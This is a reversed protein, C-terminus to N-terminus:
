LIESVRRCQPAREDQCVAALVLTVYRFHGNAVPAFRQAGKAYEAFFFCRRNKARERHLLKQYRGIRGIATENRDRAERERRM